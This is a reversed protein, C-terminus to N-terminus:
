SMLLASRALYELWHAVTRQTSDTDPAAALLEELSSRDRTGDLLGFLRRAAPELRVADHRLNTVLPSSEAQVRALLSGVPRESVTTTGPLEISHLAIAREVFGTLLVNALAEADAASMGAAIERFWAGRPWARQLTSLAVAVQPSAPEVSYGSRSAFRAVADPPAATARLTSLVYAERVAAPM